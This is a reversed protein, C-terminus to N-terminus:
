KKICYHLALWPPMNEHAVGRGTSSIRGTPTYSSAITNKGLAISTSYNQNMDQAGYSLSNGSFVHSHKPMEPELLIHSFEGGSQNLHFKKTTGSKDTTAGTGIIFRGSASEYNIWKGDIENCPKTSILVAGKPFSDTITGVPPQNLKLGWIDVPTKSM